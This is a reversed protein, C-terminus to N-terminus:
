KREKTRPAADPVVKQAQEGLCILFAWLPMSITSAAQSKDATASGSALSNQTVSSAKSRDTRSMTDARGTGSGDAEATGRAEAELEARDNARLVSGPATAAVEDDARGAVRRM